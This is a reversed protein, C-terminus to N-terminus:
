QLKSGALRLRSAPVLRSHVMTAAGAELQTPHRRHLCLEIKGLLLHLPAAHMDRWFCCSCCDFFRCAVVGNVDASRPTQSVTESLFGQVRLECCGSGACFLCADGDHGRRAFPERHVQEQRYPGRWSWPRPLTARRQCWFRRRQEPCCAALIATEEHSVGLCSPLSPFAATELPEVSRPSM